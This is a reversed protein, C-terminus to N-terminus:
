EEREELKITLSTLKIKIKHDDVMWGDMGNWIILVPSCIIPINNQQQFFLNLKLSMLQWNRIASSIASASHHFVASYQVAALMPLIEPQYQEAAPSHIHLLMLRGFFCIRLSWWLYIGHHVANLENLEENFSDFLIHPRRACHVSVVFGRFMQKGLDRPIEMQPQSAPRSLESIKSKQEPQQESVAGNAQRHVLAM